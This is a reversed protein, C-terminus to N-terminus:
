TDGREEEPWADEQIEHAGQEQETPPRWDIPEFDLGSRAIDDQLQRFNAFDRYLPKFVEVFLNARMRGDTALLYLTLPDLAALREHLLRNAEAVFRTSPWRDWGQQLSGAFGRALRARLAEPDREVEPHSTPLAVRPEVRGVKRRATRASVGVEAAIQEYSWGQRRLEAMKDVAGQTVRHGPGPEPAHRGRSPRRPSM